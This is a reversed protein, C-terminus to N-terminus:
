ANKKLLWRSMLGYERRVFGIARYLGSAAVNKESVELFLARVGLTPGEVECVQRVAEKGIGRGRHAADVFLEDIFACRGGFEISFVFTLALYGVTEQGSRILWVRGLTQDSLLQRIAAGATAENAFSHAPMPDDIRLCRLYCDLVSADSASALVLTTEEAYEVMALMERRTKLLHVSSALSCALHNKRDAAGLEALIV